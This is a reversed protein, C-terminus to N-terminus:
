APPPSAALAAPWAPPRWGSLTRTRRLVSSSTKRRTVPRLRMSHDPSSRPVLSAHARRSCWTLALHSRRGDVDELFAHQAVPPRVAAAQEGREDLGREEERRDADPEAAVHVPSRAH